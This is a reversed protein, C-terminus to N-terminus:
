WDNCGSHSSAADYVPFLSSLLAVESLSNCKKLYDLQKFDVTSVSLTSWCTAVTFSSRRHLEVLHWIYIKTSTAACPSCSTPTKEMKILIFLYKLPQTHPREAVDDRPYNHMVTHAPVLREAPKRWWVRVALSHDALLRNACLRPGQLFGWTHIGMLGFVGNLWVVM